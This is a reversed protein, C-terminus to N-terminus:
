RENWWTNGDHTYVNTSRLPNMQTTTSKIKETGLDLGGPSIMSSSASKRKKDYGKRNMPEIM